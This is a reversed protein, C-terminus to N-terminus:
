DIGKISLCGFNVETHVDGSQESRLHMSRRVSDNNVSLPFGCIAVQDNDLVTVTQGRPQSVERLEIYVDPLFNSSIVNDAIDARRPAASGRMQVVFNAQVIM